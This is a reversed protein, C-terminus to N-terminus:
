LRVAFERERSVFFLVGGVLLVSAWALGLLLDTAAPTHGDIIADNWATLISGVPNIALLWQYREPVEDAFYLIPSTYLWLRLGYPLFNRLDRFYVQAASVLVTLGATVGLLLLFVPLAWLLEPGVPRDTALHLPIYVVITPVFRAFATMLSSLPLLVRPFASNLILRGGSVVSKVGQGLAQQVLYYAFITVVLHALFREGGSGQRIIDVLIFYVAALLLPNILLWLQGFATNFHQARLKTRSMERAFERRRWAERFYAGMPPLGVRHPEYVQRETHFPDERRPRRRTPTSTETSM